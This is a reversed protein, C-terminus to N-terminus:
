VICPVCLYQFVASFDHIAVSIPTLLEGQLVSQLSKIERAADKEVSQAKADIIRRQIESSADREQQGERASGANAHMKTEINQVRVGVQAILGLASRLDKAVREGLSGRLSSLQSFLTQSLLSVDSAITLNSATLDKDRLEAAARMATALGLSEMEIESHLGALRKIILGQDSLGKANVGSLRVQQARTHADDSEGSRQMEGLVESASRNARVHLAGLRSRVDQLLDAIQEEAEVKEREAENTYNAALQSTKTKILTRLARDNTEREQALVSRASALREKTSDISMQLRDVLEKTARAAVQNETDLVKVGETEAADSADIKTHAVALEQDMGRAQSDLDTKLAALAVHQKSADGTLVLLAKGQADSVGDSVKSRLEDLATSVFTTLADIDKKRESGIRKSSVALDDQASSLRATLQKIAEDIEAVTSRQVNQVQGKGEKLGGLVQQQEEEQAQRLVQQATVVDEGIEVIRHALQAARQDAEFSEEEQARKLSQIEQANKRDTQSRRAFMRTVAVRKADLKSDQEARLADVSKTAKVLGPRMVESIRRELADLEESFNTQLRQAGEQLEWPLVEGFDTSERNEERSVNRLIDTQMDEQQAALQDARAEQEHLEKVLRADAEQMDRQVTEALSQVEDTDSVTSEHVIRLQSSVNEIQEKIAALLLQDKGEQGSEISEMKGRVEDLGSDTLNKVYEAASVLSKSIGEM